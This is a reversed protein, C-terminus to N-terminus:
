SCNEAASCCRRVCLECLPPSPGRSGEWGSGCRRARGWRPLHFDWGRGKGRDRRTRHNVSQNADPEEEECIRCSLPSTPTTVLTSPYSGGRCVIPDCTRATTRTSRFSHAPTKDTQKHLDANNSIPFVTWRRRRRGELPPYKIGRM